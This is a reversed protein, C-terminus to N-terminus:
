IMMHQTYLLFQPPFIEYPFGLLYLRQKETDALPLPTDVDRVTDPKETNAQEYKSSVVTQSLM